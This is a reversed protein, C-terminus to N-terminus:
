KSRLMFAQLEPLFLALFGECSDMSESSGHYELQLKYLFPRGGFEFRPMKSARWQDGSSWAYMVRISTTAIDNAELRLGWLEHTKGDACKIEQSRRESVIKYSRSPYCVEPTHVAIPGAPGLFVAVSLREGTISNEYTRNLYGTCRLMKVVAVDVEHAAVVNWGGVSDPVRSLQRGAKEVDAGLGWRRIMSGHVLGTGIVIAVLLIGRMVISKTM